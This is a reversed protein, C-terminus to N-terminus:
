LISGGVLRSETVLSNIKGCFRSADCHCPNPGKRVFRRLTAVPLVGRNMETAFMAKGPSYALRFSRLLLWVVLFQQFM